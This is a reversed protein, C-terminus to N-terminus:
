RPLEEAGQAARGAIYGLLAAADARLDGAPGSGRVLVAKSEIFPASGPWVWTESNPNVTSRTIAHPAGTRDAYLDFAPILDGFPTRFTLERGVLDDLVIFLVLKRGKLADAVMRANGSPDVSPDFAVFVFAANRDRFTRAVQALVDVPERDGITSPHVVAWVVIRPADAPAATEALATRVHAQVVALPVDVQARVGLERAVSRQAFDGEATLWWSTINITGPAATSALTAYMQSPTIGAPGLLRDAAAASVVIVPAGTTREVPQESEIRQYPNQVIGTSLRQQAPLSPDVLVVAAAGRRLANKVHTTIDPGTAPGRGTFIGAFRLLVAIKGRVDVNAYDDPWTEIARGFDPASFVGTPRAPHDAPSIGWSLFVVPADVHGGGSDSYVFARADVPGQATEQIKAEGISVTAPAAKKIQAVDRELTYAGAVPKLGVEAFTATIDQAPAATARAAAAWELAGPFRDPIAFSIAIMVACALALGRAGRGRLDHLLNRRAYRRAVALGVMAIAVAALAFALGPVLFLWRTVWLSEIGRANALLGGWEPPESIQASSIQGTRVISLSEEINILRTAGVFVGLVGLEALAVLSAVSQQAVNVAILPVLHPLHHRSFVRLRGVGIAAAGETFGMHTLRDLESRLIRYPGAWGTLLLAGVFLLFTTDGRVFVKVVLLAVLTAPVAAVLEALSDGLLRTAPSWQALGALVLGAAVRALGALVVIVLTIRAGALVLSLLDRGLLDSGVPFVLGPDFPRPDGGHEPVFFITEHPAIREGFLAVFLLAFFAALGVFVWPDRRPM